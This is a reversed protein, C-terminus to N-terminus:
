RPREELWDLEWIEDDLDDEPVWDMMRRVWARAEDRERLAEDRQMSRRMLHRTAADNDAKCAALEAKLRDVEANASKLLRNATRLEALVMLIEAATVNGILCAQPEWSEACDRMEQIVDSSAREM